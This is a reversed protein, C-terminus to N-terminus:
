KKKGGKKKGKMAKLKKAGRQEAREFAPTEAAEEAIDKKSPVKRAM